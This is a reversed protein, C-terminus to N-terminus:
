TPDEGPGVHDALWEMVPQMKRWDDRVVTLAKKTGIWAEDDYHKAFTLSRNRLLEIRPHDAEYGKPKTKLPNGNVDFTKPLSTLLRELEAGAATDVAKRYRELQKGQAAYWGGAVMLGTASVQVYYGVNDEIMVVAGQHDKIPTKDKSFRADRYPRYIKFEGFEDQLAECLAVLPAKVFEEYEGKHDTWWPKNNNTALAAYFAFAQDPFGSFSAM